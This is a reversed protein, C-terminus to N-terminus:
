GAPTRASAFGREWKRHKRSCKRIDRKGRPPASVPRDDTRRSASLDPRIGTCPPCEASAGSVVVSRRPPAKVEGTRSSAPDFCSAAPSSKGGSAATAIPECVLAIFGLLKRYYMYSEVTQRPGLNTLYKKFRAASATSPSGGFSSHGCRPSRTALRSRLLNLADSGAQHLAKERIPIEM